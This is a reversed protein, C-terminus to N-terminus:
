RQGKGRRPLGNHQLRHLHAKPDQEAGHWIVRLKQSRGALFRPGSLCGCRLPELQYGLRPLGQMEHLDDQDLTSFVQRSCKGQIRSCDDTVEYVASGTCYSCWQWTSTHQGIEARLPHNVQAREEVSQRYVSTYVYEAFCVFTEPEIEELVGQKEASEQMGNTMTAYLPDSFGMLADVHIKLPAKDKGVPFTFM